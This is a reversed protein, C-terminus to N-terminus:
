HYFGDYKGNTGNKPYYKDIWFNGNRVLEFVYINKYDNWQATANNYLSRSEEVEVHAKRDAVVLNNIKYDNVRYGFGATSFLRPYSTYSSGAIDLAMLFSFSDADEKSASPIFLKLVDPNRAKQLDEFKVILSKAEEEQTPFDTPTVVATPSVTPSNQIKKNNINPTLPRVAYGALFALVVIVIVKVHAALM